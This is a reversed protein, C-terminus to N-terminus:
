SCTQLSEEVGYKSFIEALDNKTQSSTISSILNAVDTETAPYRLVPYFIGNMGSWTQPNSNGRFHYDFMANLFIAIMLTTTEDGDCQNSAPTATGYSLDSPVVEHHIGSKKGKWGEYWTPWNQTHKNGIEEGVPNYQKPGAKIVYDIVTWANNSDQAELYSKLAVYYGTPHNPNKEESYGNDYDDIKIRKQKGNLDELLFVVNSIAHPIEAPCGCHCDLIESFKKDPGEGFITSFVSDFEKLGLSDSQLLENISCPKLLRIERNYTFDSGHGSAVISNLIGNAWVSKAPISGVVAAASTRALFQRRGKM